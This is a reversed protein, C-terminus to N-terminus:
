KATYDRLDCITAYDAERLFHCWVRREGQLPIKPGRDWAVLCVRRHTNAFRDFAFEVAPALDSDGSFIALTDFEGSLAVRVCDIALKVDIGKERPQPRVDGLYQLPRTCVEINPDRRWSEVQRRCAAHAHPEKRGDPQGRYVFVRELRTNEERSAVLRGVKM